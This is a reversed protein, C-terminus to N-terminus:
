VRRNYNATIENILLQLINNIKRPSNMKNAFNIHSSLYNYPKQNESINHSKCIQKINTNIERLYLKWEFNKDRQSKLIINEITPIYNYLVDWCKYLLYQRKTEKNRNRCKEVITPM